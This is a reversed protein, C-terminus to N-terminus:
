PLLSWSRQMWRKQFNQVSMRASSSRAENSLLQRIVRQTNPQNAEMARAVESPRLSTLLIKTDDLSSRGIGRQIDESQQQDGSVM